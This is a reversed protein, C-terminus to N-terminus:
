RGNVIMNKATEPETKTKTSWVQGQSGLRPQRPNWVVEGPELCGVLGPVCGGVETGNTEQIVLTEETRSRACGLHSCM